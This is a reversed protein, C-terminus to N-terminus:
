RKFQDDFDQFTDYPWIIFNGQDDLSVSDLSGFSNGEEDSAIYIPSNGPLKRLEKMLDKVTVIPSM